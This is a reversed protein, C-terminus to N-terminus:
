PRPPGVPDGLGNRRGGCRLGLHEHDTAWEAGRVHELEHSLISIIQAPAMERTRIKVKRSRPLTIGAMMGLLVGPTEADECWEVFHVTYGEAEIDAILADAERQRAPPLAPRYSRARLDQLTRQRRRERKGM